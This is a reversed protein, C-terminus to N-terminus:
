RLAGSKDADLRLLGMRWFSPNAASDMRIKIQRGMCRLNLMQTTATATFPGTTVTSGNPFPKSTLTFAVDGTQDEFDPVLRKIVMLNGGDAVDFYATELFAALTGGNATKGREHYYLFGDTGFAVPSPFIGAPVWSTRALAGATWHNEIWNFAAYRSCENGDRSDPCLFWVESFEANVGAFVKEGQSAALHDVVDRRLRCDVVQPVAGQFIYFNGNGSLWFAIGNHETAAHRGILGCGTGMMRISFATADGTFQMSYLADDSWLLNQQRSALGGILRGGKALPLEGSINIDTPTWARFNEQDSWRVLMPNYDGDAEYTGLLVVIRNPDIFFSDIREPAEPIHFAKSELKISINSISGAFTADAAFLLDSPSAPAVVLRSYNGSVTIPASAAGVDLIAPTTGANMRLKVSGATVTATFSVRYTYGAKLAGQVNQAVNAASGATKTLTTAGSWGSGKAWDNDNLEAYQTAPQWVYLGGGRRNALLTEGFNDLSWVTPLYDSVSPLGYVGTGFTGTGYGTGGTGDTLGNSAWAVTYDVFGGTATSTAASAATITYSNRTLVAVIAYAGALTVGGVATANAFRITDGAKLGHEAHTLTVTTSANLTTVPAKSAQATTTFGTGDCAVSLATGAPITVALNVGNIKDTTTPALTISGSGFNRIYCSFTAGLTTAATLTLAFGGSSTAPVYLLSGSDAALITYASSKSALTVALDSLTGEAAYTPTVDLLSGGSYAYLHNATGFALQPSGDLAAWAKVGRAMGSFTSTSVLEYGGVMEPKGQRFRVWNADVWGGEAALPTDDKVLGAAFEVKSLM